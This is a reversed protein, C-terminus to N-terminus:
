IEANGTAVMRYGNELCYNLWEGLFQNVRRKEYPQFMRPNPYPYFAQLHAANQYALVEAVQADHYIRIKMHQPRVFKEDLASSQSFTLTTTYVSRELIGVSLRPLGPAVLCASSGHIADLGDLVLILKAFNEEYLSLTTYAALNLM